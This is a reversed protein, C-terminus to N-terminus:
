EILCFDRRSAPRSRSFVHSSPNFFSKESLLDLSIIRTRLLSMYRLEKGGPSFKKLLFGRERIEGKQGEKREAREEVKGRRGEGIWGGM